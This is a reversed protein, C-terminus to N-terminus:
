LYFRYVPPRQDLQQWSAGQPREQIGRSHQGFNYESALQNWDRITRPFFL